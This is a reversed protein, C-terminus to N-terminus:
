SEGGHDPKPPNLLFYDHAINRLVMREVRDLDYLGYYDAVRIAAMLPKRPYDRVMGLLQRLALTTQKRGRKKLHAVYENLEPAAQALEKEERSPQRRRRGKGRPPRHQSLTVRKQMPDIIRSHCVMPQRASEIAIQEESVRVQVQRGIWDVPVSYRNTDVTVYGEVDVLRHLIKYPEPIWLPLPRLHNKEIAFLEIPKTRLHRKYSRNVRDCWIRAQQNLDKWDAFERGALFNTEVHWFFREVHASRNADGKEHARFRFGFREAFAEMEPLPVMEEGTGRLVVVHTNDVMMVEPVGGFYQLARTGFLKCEFIQFRPYGQFFCMRSFGLVGGATQMKCRRGGIMAQHPSTDHQMEQGPEFHYRGSAVIPKHGIRHRRCFATLAPYSLEAGLDTLEEHVRVLNGRCRGVLDLIEERYPEAKEPRLIAPPQTSESQIVKKVVGRSIQLLRAITRRGIGRRHMELIAARQSQTLM